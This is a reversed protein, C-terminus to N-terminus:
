AERRGCRARYGNPSDGTWRTFARSFNAPNEYGLETAIERVSRNTERLLRSARDRRCAQLMALYSTGSRELRRKLTRSSMALAAAVETVQPFSGSEAADLIRRVRTVLDDDETRTEALERECLEIAQRSAFPDALAPRQSLLSSPFSVAHLPRGYRTTPLRSRWAGFYPPEDTAFWIEVGDIADLEKGLMTSAGRALGLLINEFFFARLEPVPIPFRERLVWLARDGEVELSMEFHAQRVRVYRVSVEIADRMTASSMAAFGLLGHVTPRMRLGYEYGLGPDRTLELARLVLRGWERGSMRTTADELLAPRLGLGEVLRSAGIGREGLLEVLLAL